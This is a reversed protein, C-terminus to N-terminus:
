YNNHEAGKNNGHPDIKVSSIKSYYGSIASYCDLYAYM